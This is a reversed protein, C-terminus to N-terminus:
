EQEENKDTISPTATNCATTTPTIAQSSFDEEIIVDEGKKGLKTFFRVLWSKKAGSLIKKIDYYLSKDNILAGLTGEGNEIKRTINKLSDTSQQINEISKEIKIKMVEDTLLSSLPGKAEELDKTFKSMASSATKLDIVLTNYLEKDNIMKGLTGEGNKIRELVDSLNQTTSELNDYVNRDKLLSGLSGKGQKIKDIIEKLSESIDSINGIATKYKTPENIMSGALGKGEDIKFLINTLYESANGLNDLVNQGKSLFESLIYPETSKIADYANHIFMDASGFTIDIYQDGLLGVTKITAVSDTRIKDQVSTNIKMTVHVNKETVNEPFVIDTVTGINVGALRVPSGVRLGGVDKFSTYLVYQQEFLNKKQAISFIAFM